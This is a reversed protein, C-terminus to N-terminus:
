EVKGLIGSGEVIVGRREISHVGDDRMVILVHYSLEAVDGVYKVRVAEVLGIGYPTRVKDGVSCVAYEKIFSDEQSGLCRWYESCLRRRFSSLEKGTM